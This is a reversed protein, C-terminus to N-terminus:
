RRRILWCLGDANKRRVKISRVRFHAPVADPGSAPALLGEWEEMEGEPRGRVSVLKGRFEPREADPIFSVLSTGNLGEANAGLLERAARNAERIEGHPETILYGDPAFEFFDAYRQREAALVDSQGQLEEWLTQIEEIAAQLEAANPAGALRSRLMQTVNKAAAYLSFSNAPL